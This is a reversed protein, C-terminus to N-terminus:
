IMVQKVETVFKMAIPRYFISIRSPPLIAQAISPQRPRGHKLVFPHTSFVKMLMEQAEKTINKERESEKNQCPSDLGFKTM